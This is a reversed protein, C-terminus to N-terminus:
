IEKGHDPVRESGRRSGLRASEGLFVNNHQEAM